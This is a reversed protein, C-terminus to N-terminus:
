GWRNGHKAPREKNAKMKNFMVEHLGPDAEGADVLTGYLDFTRILIDAFEETVKDSGQSKRLAELVETVESHILALKAAYKDMMVPDDWFGKEVNTPHIENALHDFIDEDSLKM